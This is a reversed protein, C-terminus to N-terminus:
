KDIAKFPFLKSPTHQERMIRAAREVVAPNQAAVDTTESEDNALNYLQIALNGKHMNQRVAKWEGMRVAQQGGGGPFEWYLFEHKKQEGKGLITPAMSIGDIGSPTKAGSIDCLTPLVDQFGSILDTTRGEKTRGPWRVIMPVRVGGEFLSGKFGRLRGASLFFISDSGGTGGASPGNDSSFIVITDEDLRLERLLDLIRGVTRDMRTVMAAYAARPHDHPQYGKGGKYPPDDWMGKYANLSDEPVQLAVHSIIFPLYLFFSKNKNKKIFELAEAEFLDHSYQKGTAKGPNGELPVKEANRWLFTPYHNHAHRQCYYGFFHDFGQKHPDGTSDHMGLGWKGIMGTVYGATKLLRALTVTDAAIPQQGDPKMEANNRIQAHGSHLGTMLVCRSPACVANGAYHQTFRLGQAAMKDLHPTKIKKQGYCGLEAHGLDDALIYIINPKRTTQADAVNVISAAAILALFLRCMTTARPASEPSRPLQGEKM